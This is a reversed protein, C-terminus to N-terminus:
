WNSLPFGSSLMVANLASDKKVKSRKEKELEVFFDNRLLSLSFTAELSPSNSPPPSSMFLYIFYHNTM